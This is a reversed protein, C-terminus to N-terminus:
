ERAAIPMARVTGDQVLLEFPEGEAFDAVSSLTEGSEGRAVAYGRALTALPSLADLRGSARSIVGRRKEASRLSANKM